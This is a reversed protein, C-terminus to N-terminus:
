EKNSENNMEIIWSGEGGGGEKVRKVRREENWAENEMLLLLIYCAM